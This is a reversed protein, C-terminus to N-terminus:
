KDLGECFRAIAFDVLEVTDRHHNRASILAAGIQVTKTDHPNTFLQGDRLEDYKNAMAIEGVHEVQLRMYEAQAKAEVDRVLRIVWKARDATTM